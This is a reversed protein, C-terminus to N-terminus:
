GEPHLSHWIEEGMSTSYPNNKWKSSSCLMQWLYAKDEWSVSSGLGDLFAEAEAQSIGGSQDTDASSLGQLYVDLKVDYRQGVTAVKYTSASIYEMAIMKQKDTWGTKSLADYKERSKADSNNAYYVIYDDLSVGASTLREGAEVWKDKTYGPMVESKAVQTAYDNLKDVYAAQTAANAKKYTSNNMLRKTAPGTIESWRVDYRAQQEETMGTSSSGAGVGLLDMADSWKQGADKLAKYKALQSDSAMLNTWIFEKQAETWSQKKLLDMKESSNMGTAANHFLLYSERSIGKGVAESGVRIWKDPENGPIIAAAADARAMDYLSDILKAKGEDDAKQYEKSSMLAGLSEGATRKWAQMWSVRQEATLKYEQGGSSISTPVDSPIVGANGASYLRELEQLNTADVKGVRFTMRDRIASRLADGKLDQLGSKSVTAVPLVDELQYGNDLCAETFEVWADKGKGTVESAAKASAFDYLKDILKEKGADNAKKYADSGMLDELNESVTRQWSQLWAVRQEPTLKTEEGGSTISTPVDSPIVGTRGGAYLRGLEDLTKEDLDGVRFQMREEIANDLAEGDLDKMKSKDMTAVPLYDELPIGAAVCALGFDVWADTGKGTVAGAAQQKAFEYLKSILKAKGTDDASQYADSALLKELNESVVKSWTERYDARDGGRIEVEEGDITVKSPIASPIAANYGAEWLRQLEDITGDGLGDTRNDMLVRIAANLDRGHAKSLDGREIEDFLNEYRDAWEPAILKTIGLLYTETNKAPIGFNMAMQTALDKIAGLGGTYDQDHLEKLLNYFGGATDEIASLASIEMGGYRSYKGTTIADAAKELGELIESGFILSGAYTDVLDKGLGGFIKGWDLNGEEDLYKDKKGGITGKILGKMVVYVVNAALIGSFTRVAFAKSQKLQERNHATDNERCRAADARLRGVAEYMMNYYQLPVTKYMTLMKVIDSKSRLIAPRQMESYNPQTDYVAREFVRAVEQYYPDEGAAIQEQTGPALDTDKSVRYEAAAWLRRITWADMKQIWNFWWPLKGELGQEKMYDGMEQTSNGQNRFWLVPSYKQVLNMDVRRALNLGSLLADWGLAQAAGPLSATQSFAVAPNGMLSAGALNGRLKALFKAATENIGSSQQLNALLNDLYKQVESGWKDQLTEKISGTYANGEEHFTYNMVANFDRIAETFGYYKSILDIHDMVATSADELIIPNGAHKRENVISGISELSLNRQVQEPQTALFKRSVKIGYYNDCGAREFGDIRMSVENIKEKSFGDYYEQLVKAFAREQSTCDKVIARVVEPRMKVRTGKADADALRGKRYLEKNPIVIGGTEIHRLNDNNRSHMLLAVRMMPTIEITRNEVRVTGDKETIGVPVTVEIWQAHKGQATQLWKQNAKNRVFPDFVRMAQRMYEMRRTGGQELSRSLREMIGGRVWGGLRQIQRTPSLHESGFFTRLGGGKSGASGQIEKVAERAAESIEQNRADTLLQKNETVSKVLASITRGLEIVDSIDLDDLQTQSLRALREEVYPNGLFNPDEKAEDYKRALAQLDELGAPSISRAMTDLNGIIADIQQQIVPASKRRMRVLQQLQKMVQSRADNERKRQVQRAAQERNAQREKVLAMAGQKRLSIELEAKQAFTDILGDLKRELADMQEDVTVGTENQNRAMMEAITIHEAKGEEALDVITELIERLDTNESDFSGPFMESLEENWSDAARDNTDNTLYIGNGWARQRFAEWDDGFEARVEDSVYIRGSRVFDRIGAYYEDPAVVEIGAEYLQRFLEARDEQTVRGQSMVKDAFRNLINGLVSRKGAQISFLNMADTRFEKRAQRPRNDRLEAEKKLAKKEEAKQRKREAKQAKDEQSAKKAAQKKKLAERDIELTELVNEIDQRLEARTKADKAMYGSREMTKLMRLREEAAQIRNKLTSIGAAEAKAVKKERALEEYPGIGEDAREALDEAKDNRAPEGPAAIREETERAAEEEQNGFWDASISDDEEDAASLRAESEKNAPLAEIEFAPDYESSGPESRVAEVADDVYRLVAETDALDGSYPKIGLGGERWTAENLEAAEDVLNRRQGETMESVRGRLESWKYGEKNGPLAERNGIWDVTEESNNNVSGNSQQISNNSTNSGNPTESTLQPSSQEMNLSQAASGKENMYASTVMHTKKKSDIAAEIVYYIGDVKKAYQIQRARSGDKNTWETSVIPQGKEDVLLRVDDYNQLVYDIRAIDEDNAMSHDAKGNKGHRNDIHTITTGNIANDFGQADQGLIRQIDATQREGMASLPYIQKARYSDSQLGRVRNIFSLLKLDVAEEYERMIKREEPTHSDYEDQSFRTGPGNKDEIAARNQRANEIDGAFRQATEGALARAAGQQGSGRKMGAYVDAFIEELYHEVDAEETGYCGDYAQVYADVMSRIEEQTHNKFLYDVIDQWLGKNAAVVSHFMEHDFLQQPSYMRSDAQIFVHPTGDKDFQFVGSSKQVRGSKGRTEMKGLVFDLRIGSAEAETRLQRMSDTLGEDQILLNAANKTGGRIGIERSSQKEAGLTQVYNKLQALEAARQGGRKGNRVETSGTGEGLGGAQRDTGLGADRQGGDAPGEAATGTGNNLGGQAETPVLMAQGSETNVAGSIGGESYTSDNRPAAPSAAIEEGTGRVNEADLGERGLGEALGLDDGAALQKEQLAAQLGQIQGRAMALFGPNDQNQEILGEYNAITERIRAPEMGRGEQLGAERAEREQDETRDGAAEPVAPAAAETEPLGTEEEEPAITEEAPARITGEAPTFDVNERHSTLYRDRQAQRYGELKAETEAALTQNSANTKAQAELMKIRDKLESSSLSFAEWYSDTMAQALEPTQAKWEARPQMVTPGQNQDVTTVLAESAGGMLGGSVLGGLADNIVEQGWEERAQGYAESYSMGQTMLENARRSIQDDYGYAKAVAADSIRNALTTCLEESAEIGGQVLMQRVAGHVKNEDVLHDISVYEFLAEAIGACTAHTRAAKESWGADIMQRYDSAAASSGMALTGLASIAKVAWGAAEEGAIGGFMFGGVRAALAIGGSQAMSSGLSVVDGLGKGYLPNDENTVKGALAGTNLLGYTELGNSVSALLAEGYRNKKQGERSYAGGSFMGLPGGGSWFVYWTGKLFKGVRKVPDKEAKAIEQYYANSNVNNVHELYRMASDPDKAYMAYFIPWEEDTVFEYDSLFMYGHKRLISAAAQGQLSSAQVKGNTLDALYAGYKADVQAQASALAAANADDIEQKGQARRREYDDWDKVTYSISMVGILEQYAQAKEIRRIEAEWDQVTQEAGRLIRDDAAADNKVDYDGRETHRENAAAIRGLNEQAWALRKRAQELDYSLDEGSKTYALYLATDEQKAREVERDWEDMSIQYLNQAARQRIQSDRQSGARASIEAWRDAEDFLKQQLAKDKANDGTLLEEVPDEAKQFMSYSNPRDQDRRIVPETLARTYEPIQPAAAGGRAKEYGKKAIDAANQAMSMSRSYTEFDGAEAAEQALNLYFSVEEEGLNMYRDAITPNQEKSRALVTDLTARRRKLDAQFEEERAQWAATRDKVAGQYGAISRDLMGQSGAKAGAANYRQYFDLDKEARELAKEPSPNALSAGAGTTKHLADSVGWAGETFSRKAENVLLSRVQQRKEEQAIVDSLDATVGSTGGTETKKAQGAIVDSLDVAEGTQGEKERENEPIIFSSRGGYRKTSM